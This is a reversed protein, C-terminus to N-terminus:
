YLLKIKFFHGIQDYYLMFNAWATPVTDARPNYLARKGIVTPMCTLYLKVKTPYFAVGLSYEVDANVSQDDLQFCYVTCISHM